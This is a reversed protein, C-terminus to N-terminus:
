TTSPAIGVFPLSLAHTSVRPAHDETLTHWTGDSHERAMGAPAVRSPPIAERHRRVTASTADASEAAPHGAGKEGGTVWSAEIADNHIRVQALTPTRTAPCPQADLGAGGASGRDGGIGGTGKAPDSASYRGGPVTIERPPEAMVTSPMLRDMAELSQPAVRSASCLERTNSTRLPACSISRPSVSM